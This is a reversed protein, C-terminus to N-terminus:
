CHSSQNGGRTIATMILNDAISSIHGARTAAVKHLCSVIEGLDGAIIKGM